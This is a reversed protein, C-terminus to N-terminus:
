KFSNRRKKFSIQGNLVLTTLLMSYDDGYIDKLYNCEEEYTGLQGKLTLM